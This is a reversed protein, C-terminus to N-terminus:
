QFVADNRRDVTENLEPMSRFRRRGPTLLFGFSFATSQNM